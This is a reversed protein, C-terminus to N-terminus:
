IGMTTCKEREPLLSIYKIPCSQGTQRNFALHRVSAGATQGPEPLTTYYYLLFINLFYLVLILINCLKSM